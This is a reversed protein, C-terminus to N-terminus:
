EDLAEVLKNIETYHEVVIDQSRFNKSFESLNDLVKKLSQKTPTNYDGETDKFAKKIIDDCYTKSMEPESNALEADLCHAEYFCQGMADRVQEPTLKAELDLGFILEAM